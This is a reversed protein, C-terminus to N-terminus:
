PRTQSVSFSRRKNNYSLLEAYLGWDVITRLTREADHRTLGPSSGPMLGLANVIYYRGNASATMFKV